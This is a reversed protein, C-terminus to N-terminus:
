GKGFRMEAVRRSARSTIHLVRWDACQEATTTGMATFQDAV